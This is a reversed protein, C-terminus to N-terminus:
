FQLGSMSQELAEASRHLKALEEDSMPVQLRERIGNKDVISPVSLAVGSVGRYDELVTSVPLVAAQDGLVAEVIRAGALGIAYNTSGKGDIVRYAAKMAQEALEIRREEPFLPDGNDDVWEDIPVQGINAQSWLPFESDGHEGMIVAHVSSTAVNAAQGILLRLRSTDIVTGSSFIRDAPLGSIQQAVVTLVDCPNTVLMYVADPAVELLQPLMTSLIKVNADALELRTQGPKQRAGATIVVMDSDRLIELDGSGIVPTGGAFLSSHAIDLAEAEARSGDIDYLAINRASQRMMAAYAMASGVGGAGVIGLKSTTRFDSTM